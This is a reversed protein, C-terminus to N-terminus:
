KSKALEDEAKFLDNKLIAKHVDDMHLKFSKNQFTQEFRKMAPGIKEKQTPSLEEFITYADNYHSQAANVSKNKMSTKAKELRYHVQNVTAAKHHPVNHQKKVEKEKVQKIVKKLDPSIKVKVPHETIRDSEKASILPSPDEILDDIPEIKPLRRDKVVKPKKRKLIHKIKLKKKTKVHKVKKKTKKKRKYSLKKHLVLKKKKKAKKPFHPAALPAKRKKKKAAM